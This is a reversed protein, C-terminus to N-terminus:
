AIALDSTAILVPRRAFRLHMGYKPGLTLQPDLVIKQDPEITWTFRQAITALILQAEMTAFTTGICVRPGAGFPIYAYKHRAKENEPSFREPDFREPDPWYRANHHLTYPSIMVATNKDITYGGITIPTHVTRPGLSWAPPYLRMSEKIIMENWRLQGLDAMTPPRDGLVTDLEDQLRSLVKPHQSLLYLTWTLANSTTEHGALFLTIVEDRVQQDSMGHQGDEDKALLLMSLLDGEDVGSARRENIVRWVIRDITATAAKIRRNIPLPLWAPVPIIITTLRTMAAQLDDLAHSVAEAEAASVDANFLTKSVIGLTLNTMEHDVDRVEGTQWTDLLRTTQEVMVDAYAQIRKLHFAPQVLKRQRKHNEGENTLLGMGLFRGLLKADRQDKTHKDRQTILFEQIADPNNLLYVRFPGVRAMSIEGYSALDIMYGLSDRMLEVMSGLLWNGRPGPPHPQKM